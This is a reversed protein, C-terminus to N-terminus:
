KNPCELAKQVAKEIDEGYLYRNLIIGDPSILMICPIYEIGYVKTGEKGANIMQPFPINEDKIARLTHEPKDSSPVGIIELQDRGYKNYLSILYPLQERCPRCWSAWFDVIALKGKGVFNSLRQIKGEYEVSFDKFKHGPSTEIVNKWVYSQERLITNSKVNPGAQNYFELKLSETYLFERILRVGLIDNNHKDFLPKILEATKDSTAEEDIISNSYNGIIENISDRLAFLEENLNGGKAYKRDVPTIDGKELIFNFYDTGDASSIMAMQPNEINGKFEFNGNVTETSDIVKYEKTTEVSLYIKGNPLQSINGTIKFNNNDNCGSLILVSILNFLLKKM